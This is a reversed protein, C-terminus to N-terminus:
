ETVGSNYYAATEQNHEDASWGPTFWSTWSEKPKSPAPLGGFSNILEMSRNIEKESMPKGSKKARRMDRVLELWILEAKIQDRVGARIVGETAPEMSPLNQARAYTDAELRKATGVLNEIEDDSLKQQGSQVVGYITDVTNNVQGMASPNTLIGPVWINASGDKLPVQQEPFGSPLIALASGGLNMAFNVDRKPDSFETSKWRNFQTVRNQQWSDLTRKTVPDERATLRQRETQLQIKQENIDHMASYNKTQADHLDITSQTLAKRLGATDIKESTDQRIADTSAQTHQTSAQINSRRVGETTIDEIIRRVEEQSKAIDQTGMREKLSNLRDMWGVEKDTKGTEAKTYETGAKTKEVDAAKQKLALSITDDQAFAIKGKLGQNQTVLGADAVAEPIFRAYKAMKVQVDPNNYIEQQLEPPMKLMLERTMMAQKRVEEPDFNYKTTEGAAKGFSAGLEGGTDQMAPPVGPYRGVGMLKPSAAAVMQAADNFLAM